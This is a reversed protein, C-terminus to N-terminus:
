KGVKFLFDKDEKTLSEYGSKSIKDLIADIRQQETDHKKPASNNSKKNVHVTKFPHNSKKKPKFLHTFFDIFRTFPKSWDSGNKLANMYLFGLLAGGLHAIHGGTNQVPIQILDMIILALAIHWMKVLGILLLRVEMLPSYSAVAMLIGMVGASAGVLYIGTNFFYSSLIYGIGGFIAALFYVAVFQKQTFYTTFLRGVFNLVIMNFILHFVSAHLFAYSVLTWPRTIVISLKSSLGTWDLLVQHFGPVFAQIIFFIASIGINWFM